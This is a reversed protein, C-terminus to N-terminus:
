PKNAEEEVVVEAQVVELLREVEVRSTRVEIEVRREVVLLNVV